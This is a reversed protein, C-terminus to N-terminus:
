IKAFKKRDIKKVARVNGTRKEKGRYVESFSGKGLLSVLEYDKEIPTTSIFKIMNQYTFNVSKQM